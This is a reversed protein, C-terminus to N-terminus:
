WERGDAEIREPAGEPGEFDWEEGACGAITAALALLPVM